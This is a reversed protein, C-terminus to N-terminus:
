VCHLFKDFEKGIEGNEDKIRELLQRDDFSKLRRITGDIVDSSFVGDREYIGRHSELNEASELCSVPLSPFDKLANLNKYPANVDVYLKKTLELADERELGHRAAVALGALLLHINASGDPCRFEITQNSPADPFGDTEQPNADIHLDQIGRWGLPVRVLASRNRDGWFIRTPAEQNPVLRMYSIPVTNGFATLSAALQLFGSIVKKALDSLVDGEIMLNKEEKVLKTHIHLGNGAHGVIIKPAFSINVGYKYGLMRLIWRAIVVQDATEEIPAPLFEIEHQELEQYGIYTHGVESHGYKIRGGVQSIAQMAECRLHEWKSFPSSEIYGKQSASRYLPNGDSIIYYELEAMAELTFGTEKKLVEHAKKIINEPSNAFPAGKETYYSCLVDMTPISSFPNVYATRYRPIIYLDSSASDINSFLNSGDVREGISLLRDLDARGTVIFNLTKLKGEESIFRLNVMQIDNEEVFKIIDSKTFEEPRKGLYQVIRNFNKGIHSDKV